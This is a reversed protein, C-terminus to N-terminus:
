VFFLEDFQTKTQYDGHSFGTIVPAASASIQTAGRILCRGM